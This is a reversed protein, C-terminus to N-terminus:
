ECAPDTNQKESPDPMQSVVLSASIQPTEPSRKPPHEAEIHRRHQERAGVLHDFRCSRQVLYSRLPRALSDCHRNTARSVM